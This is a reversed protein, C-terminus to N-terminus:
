GANLTSGAEIRGVVDRHLSQAYIPISQVRSNVRRQQVVAILRVRLAAPPLPTWTARQLM